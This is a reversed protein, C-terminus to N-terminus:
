KSLAHIVIYDGCDFDQIIQVTRNQISQLVNRKKENNLFNMTYSRPIGETLSSLNETEVTINKESIQIGTDVYEDQTNKQFM